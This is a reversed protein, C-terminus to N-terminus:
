RQIVACPLSSCTVLALSNIRWATIPTITITAAYAITYKTNLLKNSTPPASPVVAPYVHYNKFATTAGEALGSARERGVLHIIQWDSPWHPLAEIILKNIRSSGTGGGLAFIVPCNTSLGFKQRSIEKDTVSLDRVPNGLWTTKKIPFFQTTEQLATTIKTATKTMLKNALGVRADQQHVWTPIGLAWAAWHLPVSVFGGASILLTPKEQILLVFAQFISWVSKFLDTINWFSLYRRWKGTAIIYYPINYKEVIEKEPGKKTGVWIFQCEPNHRHFIEYIALLPIVPGLTGGGSLLIKM